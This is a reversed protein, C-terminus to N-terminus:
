KIKREDISAQKWISKVTFPALDGSHKPVTVKGPKYAHVYQCHSGSQSELYWGDARLRREIEKFRM